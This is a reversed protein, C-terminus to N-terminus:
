AVRPKGIAGISQIYPNGIGICPRGNPDLSWVEHRDTWTGTERTHGTYTGSDFVLADGDWTVGQYGNPGNPTGDERLGSAVGGVVGILYTDESRTGNRFEREVAIDKFFPKMPEGRVNTRVLTQRVSITSPVDSAAQLPEQLVWHGTFDPKGQAAVRAVMLLVVSLTIQIWCTHSV